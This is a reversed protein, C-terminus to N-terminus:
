IEIVVKGSFNKGQFFKQAENIEEIPFVKAVLPKLLGKELYSVLRKFVESELRTAGIMELDKYILDRLDLDVIPGAIAGSSM